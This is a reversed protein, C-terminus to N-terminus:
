TRQYHRVIQRVNCVMFKQWGNFCNQHFTTKLIRIYNKRPVNTGTDFKEISTHLRKVVQYTILDFKYESLYYGLIGENNSAREKNQYGQM